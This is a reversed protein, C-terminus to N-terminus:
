LVRRWFSAQEISRQGDEARVIPDDADIVRMVEQIIKAIALLGTSIAAAKAGLDSPAAALNYNSGVFILGFVLPWRVRPIDKM